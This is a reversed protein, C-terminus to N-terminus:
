LAMDTTFQSQYLRAYFGKQVLLEDHTGSEVVQGENMVVIKDAHKITSLRHAIVFCTKGKMLIQLAKQIMEETRTDISSTAEDLILIPSGALVARAISLLQRQGGSLNGGNDSLVTEYGEPLQLIFEHAHAKRAAEEVEHDTATLRGYRINERVTESFLFPEQLVVSISRRLVSRGIKKLELGDDILIQGEDYDYFRTLLNIITTKGAGTPGVIAVTEGQEASLCANKLIAKEPLYSFGVHDFVVRGGLGGATEVQPRDEEKPEDIIAFVREAGALASQVTNIMNLIDNIPRTFNRMYLLFAFVMGATMNMGKIMLFGGSVSIILYTLNNIVNNLPGMVGSIAQAMISSGTYQRNIRAFKEKVKQEQSFLKVTKQGSVMEEIYGNLEGLEAQQRVFHPQTKGAVVKTLLFMLPTTTLAIATLLPSLLFMAILMGVISVVGSFLQVVSQSLVLNINDVDNTLRSMLDGSAHTDFYRLPLKQLNLLLDRRLKASTKQAVAIMFHNQLYTSAVGVGYIVLLFFCIQALGRIDGSAIFRDIAYGNFRTGIIAILTTVAACGFVLVLATKKQALYDMVIRKATGRADKLQVKEALLRAQSGNLPRGTINKGADALPM